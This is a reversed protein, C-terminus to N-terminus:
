PYLRIKYMSNNLSHHRRNRVRDDCMLSGCSEVGCHIATAMCGACPENLFVPLFLFDYYLIAKKTKDVTDRFVDPAFKALTWGFLLFKDRFTKCHDSSAAVSKYPVAEAELLKAMFKAVETTNRALETSASETTAVEITKATSIVEAM